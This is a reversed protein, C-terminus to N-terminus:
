SKKYKQEDCAKDLGLRIIYRYLEAYSKDYFEQQKVKDVEQKLEEPITLMLRKM